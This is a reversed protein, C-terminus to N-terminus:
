VRVGDIFQRAVLKNTEPVRAIVGLEKLRQMYAALQSNFQDDLKWVLDINKM